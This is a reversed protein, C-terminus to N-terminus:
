AESTNTARLSCFRGQSLYEVFQTYFFFVVYYFLDTLIKKPMRVWDYSYMLVLSLYHVCFCSM